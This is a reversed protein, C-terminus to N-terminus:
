YAELSRDYRKKKEPTDTVNKHKTITKTKMRFKIRTGSTRESTPGVREIQHVAETVRVQEVVTISSTDNPAVEDFDDAAEADDLVTFRSSTPVPDDRIDGPYHLRGIDFFKALAPTM